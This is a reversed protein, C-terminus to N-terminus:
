RIISMKFMNQFSFSPQLGVKYDFLETPVVELGKAIQLITLLTPNVKGDIHKIDAYDLNCRVAM